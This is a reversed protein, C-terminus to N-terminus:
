HIFLFMIYQTDSGIKQLNSLSATNNRWYNLIQLSFSKFIKIKLINKLLFQLFPFKKCRCLFRKVAGKFFDRKIHISCNECKILFEHRSYNAHVFTSFNILKQDFVVWSSFLALSM